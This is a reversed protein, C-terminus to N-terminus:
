KAYTVYLSDRVFSSIQNTDYLCDIYGALYDPHSDLNDVPLHMMARELLGIIETDITKMVDKSWKFGIKNWKFGLV